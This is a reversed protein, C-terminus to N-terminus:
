TLSCRLNMRRTIDLISARQSGTLLPNNAFLLAEVEERDLDREYKEHSMSITQFIKKSEKEFYNESVMYHHDKWFEYNLFLGLLINSVNGESMPKEGIPVINNM